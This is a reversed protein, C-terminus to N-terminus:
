GQKVLQVTYGDPDNVFYFRISPNPSIPGIAIYGNEKLTEVLGELNVAELGISVGNGPNNVKKNPEFILEIKSEDKKGLMVIQHDPSGFRAAIELHLLESYFYMSKELDSVHITVWNLKMM